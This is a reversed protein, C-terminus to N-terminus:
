VRNEVGLLEGEWVGMCINILILVKVGGGIIYFEESGKSGRFCVLEKM